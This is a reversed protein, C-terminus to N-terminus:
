VSLDFLAPTLSAESLHPLATVGEPIKRPTAAAIWARDMAQLVAVHHPAIPIGYLKAGAEIDALALPLPGYGTSQRGSCLSGFLKWLVAGGEPLPYREDGGLAATVAAEMRATFRAWAPTM